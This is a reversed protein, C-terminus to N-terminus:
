LSEPCCQKPLFLISNEPCDVLNLKRESQRLGGTVDLFPFYITYIQGSLYLFLRSVVANPANRTNENRRCLFEPILFEYKVRPGEGWRVNTDGKPGKGLGARHLGKWTLFLKWNTFRLRQSNLDSIPSREKTSKLQGARIIDRSRLRRFRANATIRRPRHGGFHILSFINHPCM